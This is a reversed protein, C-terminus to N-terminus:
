QGRGPGRETWGEGKFHVAIPSYQIPKMDVRCLRCMPPPPAVKPDRQIKVKHNGCEPCRYDRM